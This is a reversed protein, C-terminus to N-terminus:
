TRGTERKFSLAQPLGCGGGAPCRPCIGDSVCTEAGGASGPRLGGGARAGTLGKLGLASLGGLAAIRGLAKLFDRRDM